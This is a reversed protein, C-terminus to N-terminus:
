VEEEVVRVLLHKERAIREMMRSGKNEGYASMFIIASNGVEAMSMNRLYGAKKGYKNWDAPFIECDLGKEKAYIEGLTDAGSAHGSIVIVKCSPDKFKNSLYYDCTKKLLEYDSFERSGAIIVRFENVHLTM